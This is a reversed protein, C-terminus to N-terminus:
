LLGPFMGKPDLKQWDGGNDRTAYLVKGDTSGVLWVQGVVEVPLAVGLQLEQPIPPLTALFEWSRGRDHTAYFVLGSPSGDFTAPLVGDEVSTFFPLQYTPHHGSFPAPPTVAERHWSNGGDHTVYFEDGAAGGATWGTAEDLFRVPEGMPISLSTWTLGGNKTGFLAGRSFNSSSELTLSAWGVQLSVFYLDAKGGYPAETAPLPPLVSPIWTSGQNATRLVTLGAPKGALLWGHSSDIFFVGDIDSGSLGPPTVDAWSQGGDNTWDLGRGTVAWGAGPVVLQMSTVDARSPAAQQTGERSPTAHGCAPLVLLLTLAAAGMGRISVRAQISRNGYRRRM